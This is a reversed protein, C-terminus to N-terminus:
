FLTPPSLWADLLFRRILFRGFLYIAAALVGLMVSRPLRNTMTEILGHFM